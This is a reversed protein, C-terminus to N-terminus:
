FIRIQEFDESKQEARLTQINGDWNEDIPIAGQQILSQNGSYEKQNRCLLPTWQHKLNEVAGTWTGGKKLDSKIVITASSQAYIYKNRMMAIGAHFGADPKAASLVLLKGQQIGHIAQPQKLKRMMSDSLYAIAHGGASLAEEEAISDCGKAGGSVVGYGREITKQVTNKTFVADDPSISRSGVYGITNTQLLCLDGAAYFLPPCQKGLKKKLPAPYTSDARTILFIGMSELRSLEFSLSGCRDALRFIRDADTGMIGLRDSM